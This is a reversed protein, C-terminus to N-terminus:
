DTGWFYIGLSGVVVGIVTLGIAAAHGTAHYMVHDPADKRLNADWYAYGAFLLHGVGIATLVPGRLRREGRQENPQSREEGDDGRTALIVRAAPTVGAPDARDAAPTLIERALPPRSDVALLGPSLPSAPPFALVVSLLAAHM